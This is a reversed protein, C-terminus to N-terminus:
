FWLTRKEGVRQKVFTIIRVPLLFIMINKILGYYSLAIKPDFYYILIRIRSRLQAYRRQASIGNPNLCCVVVYEPLNGVDFSMMIRFFLEFDEAAKFDSSYMGIARLATARIMVAPHIFCSRVHMARSIDSHEVPLKEQFVESGNMDVFKVQGGILACESHSELYQYQRIFRGALALDEADLRAVYTYGKSLIWELGYNLAGEIGRNQDLKLLHVPFPFRIGSVDIPPNSGDVIVIDVSFDTPFSKLTAEIGVQNNYIPILVAVTNM